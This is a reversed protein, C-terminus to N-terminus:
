SCCGRFLRPGAADVAPGTLWPGDPDVERHDHRVDGGARSGRLRVRVERAQYVGPQLEQAPRAAHRAPLPHGLERLRDRRLDQAADARRGTPQGAAEAARPAAAPPHRVGPPRGTGWFTVTHIEFPDRMVWKVTTGVQIVLPQRSFRFISFGAKPDGILPVVVTAGERETKWAAWAKQGARIAATQESQAQRATSAPSGMARAQVVVTGSMAPGHILCVYPYTGAKTFTLSYGFKAATKPDEPPAGSNHYGAGDYTKGGAPFMVQPNFYTKGGEQVEMSPPQTGGLFVVNHFGQFKWTVTDGVAVEITRPFFANAVVSVDKTGGGAIVTWTRAAQAAPATVALLSAAFAAVLVRVLVKRVLM